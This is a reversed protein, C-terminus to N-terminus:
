VPFDMPTPLSTRKDLKKVLLQSIGSAIHINLIPIKSIYAEVILFKMNPVESLNGDCFGLFEFYLILCM